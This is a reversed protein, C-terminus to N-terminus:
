VDCYKPTKAHFQRNMGGEPSNKPCRKEGHRWGDDKGRSPSNKPPFVDNSGNLTVILAVTRGRRTIFFFPCCLLFTVFTNYERIKKQPPPAGSSRNLGFSALHNIDVVHDRTGLKLNFNEHTVIKCFISNEIKIKAHAKCCHQAVASGTIHLAWLLTVCIFCCFYKWWWLRGPYLVSNKNYGRGKLHHFYIQQKIHTVKSHAKCM